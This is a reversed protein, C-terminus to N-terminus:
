PHSVIADALEERSVTATGRKMVVIGGAYNALVAAEFFTAGAGLALSFASTVTDGAGTVDAVDDTGYIPVYRVPRRPEFLAMGDKGRTVLLARTRMKDLLKRGSRELTAQDNGIRVGLAAEVEPENPTASTFGTYRHLAFRSDLVTRKRLSAARRALANGLEPTMLGYDYDSVLLVDAEPLLERVAEDLHRELDRDREVRTKRDIRVVQQKTSHLGGALIRTKTPTKYSAMTRVATVDAGAARLQSLLERGPLDRGVVGVAIPRGGLTAMNNLANAGGGPVLRTEDYDLILVPAERSVRSIQGYVYEDAVLDVFALVRVREFAAVIELLRERSPHPSM